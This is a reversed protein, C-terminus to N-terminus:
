LGPRDLLHDAMEANNRWFSLQEITLDGADKLLKAMESDSVTVALAYLIKAQNEVLLDLMQVQRRREFAAGESFLIKDRELQETAQM